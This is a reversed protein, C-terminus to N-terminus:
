DELSEIFRAIAANFQDPKDLNSLHGAVTLRRFSVFEIGPDRGIESVALERLESSPKVGDDPAALTMEFGLSTLASCMHLVQIVNAQETFLPGNHLYLGRM